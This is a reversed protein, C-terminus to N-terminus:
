GEADWAPAGIDLVWRYEGDHRRLRYHMQFELREAFASRYTDLCSALDLPHVRDTWGEGLEEKLPRGTFALWSHSVYTCRMDPGSRWIMVAEDEPHGSMTRERAM